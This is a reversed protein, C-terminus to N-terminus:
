KNTVPVGNVYWKIKEAFSQFKETNINAVGLNIRLLLTKCESNFIILSVSKLKHSVSLM